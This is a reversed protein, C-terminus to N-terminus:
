KGQELELKISAMKLNVTQLCQKEGTKYKNLRHSFHPYLPPAWRRVEVEPLVLLSVRGAMALGRPVVTWLIASARM